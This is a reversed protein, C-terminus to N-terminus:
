LTETRLIPINVFNRTIVEAITLVDYKYTEKIEGISKGNRFLDLIKQREEKSVSDFRKQCEIEIHKEQNHCFLELHPLDLLCLPVTMMGKCTPCEVSKTKTMTKGM